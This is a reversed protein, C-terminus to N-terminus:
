TGDTMASDTAAAPFPRGTAAQQRSMRVHQPMAAAVGDEEAERKVASCDPNKSKVWHRSRGSIYHSGLRKSVIGEVRFTTIDREMSWLPTSNRMGRGRDISRPSKKDEFCPGWLPGKQPFALYPSQPQEHWSQHSASFPLGGDRVGLHGSTVARYCGARWRHHLVM